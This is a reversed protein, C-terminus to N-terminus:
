VEIQVLNESNNAKKIRAMHLPRENFNIIQKRHYISANLVMIQTKAM